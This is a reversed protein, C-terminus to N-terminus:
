LRHQWGSSSSILAQAAERTDKQDIIFEATALPTLAHDDALYDELLKGGTDYYRVSQIFIPHELDTNRISLTIALERKGLGSLYVHSYAPVYIVQGVFAATDGASPAPYFYDSTQFGTIAAAQESSKNSEDTCATILLLVLLVTLLKLLRIM